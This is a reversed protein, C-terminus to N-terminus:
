IRRIFAANYARFQEPIFKEMFFEYIKCLSLLQIPYLHSEFFKFIVKNGRFAKKIITKFYNQCFHNHGRWLVMHPYFLPNFRNGEVIIIEGSRRCVRKLEVLGLLHKAMRQRSEDIHHLVDHVFVYDFSNAAYPLKYISGLKFNLKYKKINPHQYVDTGFWHLRYERIFILADTAEGCGVDLIKKGAVFPFALKNFFDNKYQSYGSIIM